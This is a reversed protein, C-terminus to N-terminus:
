LRVLNIIQFIKLFAQYQGGGTTTGKNLYTAVALGSAMGTISPHPIAMKRRAMYKRRPNNRKLPLDEPRKGNANVEYVSSNLSTRYSKESILKGDRFDDYSWKAGKRTYLGKGKPM